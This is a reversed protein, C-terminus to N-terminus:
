QTKVKMAKRVIERIDDDVPEPEALENVMDSLIASALNGADEGFRVLYSGIVRCCALMIDNISFSDM